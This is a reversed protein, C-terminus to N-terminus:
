KKRMEIKKEITEISQQTASTPGKVNTLEQDNMSFSPSHNVPEQTSALLNDVIKSM